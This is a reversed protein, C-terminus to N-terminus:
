SRKPNPVQSKPSADEGKLKEAIDKRLVKKDVKQVDPLMPLKDVIELREPIKFSAISRQKLYSVMESFTFQEGPKPAVYACAREGMVPDAMGVIAVNAIKPHPLLINEVEVPYINQGGRIIMDKIRGVIILNGDDDFKGMDGTKVWGDASWVQRTTEPDKFYGASCGPGTALVEGIEGQKVERGAEDVIKLRGGVPKGSSLLRVVQSDSPRPSVTIGLDIGGFANLMPCRFKKELEVGTPYSLPAASSVVLRLSSLDCKGFDPHDALMVLIAPVSTLVTVREKQILNLAKLADFQELMVGKTGKLAGCLFPLANPGGGVPSLSAMVDASQLGWKDALLTMNHLRGGIVMEVFKPFGTSGSTLYLQTEDARHKRQQLSEAPAEKEIPREAMAKVSIAGPPTRDGAVFVHQLLPLGPKISQVMQVYDRNEYHGPIVVGVAETKRLVYEMETDRFNRLAPVTLIGAKECAVRLLPLEVWNPLQLVIVSDRPIGLEVLGLAVRDIWTNAQSWTLRVKNDVIAEKDPYQRANREWIDAYTTDGWYERYEKTLEPSHRSSKAM